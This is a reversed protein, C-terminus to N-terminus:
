IEIFAQKVLFVVSRNHTALGRHMNFCGRTGAGEPFAKVRVLRLRKVLDKGGEVTILDSRGSATFKAKCKGDVDVVVV